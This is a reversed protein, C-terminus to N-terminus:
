RRELRKRLGGPLAGLRGSGALEWLAELTLGDGAVVLHDLLASDDAQLLATSVEFIRSSWDAEATLYRLQAAALSARLAARYALVSAELDPDGAQEHLWVLWAEPDDKRDGWGVEDCYADFALWLERAVELVDDSAEPSIALMSGMASPGVPYEARPDPGLHEILHRDAFAYAARYSAADRAFGCRCAVHWPRYQDDVPRLLVETPDM